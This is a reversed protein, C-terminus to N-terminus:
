PRVPSSFGDSLLLLLLRKQASILAPTMDYAVEPTYRTVMVHDAPMM